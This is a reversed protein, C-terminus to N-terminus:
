GAALDALKCAAGAATERDTWVVPCAVPLGGDRPVACAQFCEPALRHVCAIWMGSLGAYLNAPGVPEAGPPVPDLNALAQLREIQNM